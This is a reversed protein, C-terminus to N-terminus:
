KKDDFDSWFQLLFTNDDIYRKLHETNKSDDRNGYYQLYVMSLVTDEAVKSFKSTGDNKWDKKTLLELKKYSQNILREVLSKEDNDESDTGLYHCVEEISLM